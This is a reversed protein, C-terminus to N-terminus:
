DQANGSLWEELANRFAANVAPGSLHLTGGSEGLYIGPSIETPDSGPLVDRGHLKKTGKKSPKKSESVQQDVGENEASIFAALLAQEAEPDSASSVQLHNRLRAQVAKDEGVIKALSLGLRETLAQPFRITDDFAQYLTLFSGIKSRKARSATAFLSQLATKTTPYIGAEVAKAAIRAREYYSLGLRVENEEVMAVYANQASQPHRLLALVTAFRAESTEEHLRHLATLRRWGSILGYRGQGM